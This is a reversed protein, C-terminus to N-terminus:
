KSPRLPSGDSRAIRYGADLFWDRYRSTLEQVEQASLKEKWVGPRGRHSSIHDWHILSVPDGVAIGLSEEILKKIARTSIPTSFHERAKRLIERRVQLMVRLASQLSCAEAVEQVVSEDADLGLYVATERVAQPLDEIVEEYRQWLVKGRGQLPKLHWYLAVEEDLTALIEEWPAEFKERYSVAVDRLDRYIYLVFILGKEALKLVAPRTRHTKILFRTPSRAADALRQYTEEGIELAGLLQLELNLSTHLCRVINYQLTSGSRIMGNCVIVM